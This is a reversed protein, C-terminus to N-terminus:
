PAQCHTHDSVKSLYCHLLLARQSMVVSKCLQKKFIYKRMEPHPDSDSM